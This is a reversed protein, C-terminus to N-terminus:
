KVTGKAHAIEAHFAVTSVPVAVHVTQFTALPLAIGVLPFEITAEAAGAM